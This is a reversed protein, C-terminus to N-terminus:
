LVWCGQQRPLRSSSGQSAKRANILERIGLLVLIKSSHLLWCKTPLDLAKRIWWHEASGKFSVFDAEMEGEVNLHDLGETLRSPDIPFVTQKLM